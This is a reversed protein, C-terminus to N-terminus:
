PKSNLKKGTLTCFKPSLAEGAEHLLPHPPGPPLGAHLLRASHSQLWCASHWVSLRCQPHSQLWSRAKTSLMHSSADLITSKYEVHTLNTSLMHSSAALITSKYEVHTLNTSLMHSSAALITSEYEVHTLNTILMHSSAALIASKYEVHTLKCGPDHKQVWCTHAQLWSRAKTSLMHPQPKALALVMDM